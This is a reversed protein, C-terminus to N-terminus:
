LQYHQPNYRSLVAIIRESSGWMTRMKDPTWSPLNFYVLDYREHKESNRIHLSRKKLKFPKDVSDIIFFRHYHLTKTRWRSIHMSAPVHPGPSYRNEIPQITWSPYIFTSYKAPDFQARHDNEIKSKLIVLRCDASYVSPVRFYHSTFRSANTGCFFPLPSAGKQHKFLIWSYSKASIHFTTIATCWSSSKTFNLTTHGKCRLAKM